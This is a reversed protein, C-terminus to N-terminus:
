EIGEEDGGAAEDERAAAEEETARPLVDGFLRELQRLHDGTATHIIVAQNRGASQVKKVGFGHGKLRRKTQTPGLNVYLRDGKYQKMIPRYPVRVGSGM